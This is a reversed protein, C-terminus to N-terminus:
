LWSDSKADVTLETLQFENQLKNYSRSPQQITTIYSSIFLGCYHLSHNNFMSFISESLDFIPSVDDWNQAAMKHCM